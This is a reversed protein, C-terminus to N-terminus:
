RNATCVTIRETGRVAAVRNDRKYQRDVLRIVVVALFM